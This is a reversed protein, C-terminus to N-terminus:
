EASSRPATVRLQAWWPDPRRTVATRGAERSAAIKRLHARTCTTRAPPLIRRNSRSVRRGANVFDLSGGRGVPRHSGAAGDRGTSRRRSVLLTAWVSLVLVGLALLDKAIM